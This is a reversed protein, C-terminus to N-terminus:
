QTRRKKAPNFIKEPNWLTLTVRLHGKGFDIGVKLNTEYPHLDKEECVMEILRPIDSCFVVPFEKSKDKETNFLKNVCSFLDKITNNRTPMKEAIYTEFSARGFKM